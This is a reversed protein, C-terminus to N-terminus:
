PVRVAVIGVPQRNAGYAIATVINSKSNVVQPVQIVAPGPAVVGGGQGGGGQGGGGQPPLVGVFAVGEPNEALTLEGNGLEYILYQSGINGTRTGRAVAKRTNAFIGVPAISAFGEPVSLMTQRENALDFFVLGADGPVQNTAVALLGSLEPIPQLGTFGSVGAPLDLRFASGAASDLVFLTDSINRNSPDNNAAFLFDNVDGANNRTNVSGSGPLAVATTQRSALDLVLWGNSPCPNAAAASERGAGFLAVRRSLELNFFQLNQPRCTAAFWGAPFEVTSPELAAGRFATWAHASGDPKRSLIFLTQSTGDFFQTARFRALPNGPIIGGGPPPNAPQPAPLAVLATWGDPFPRSDTVELSNNLLALRARAPKDPDDGVAMAFRGQGLNMPASLPHTLGDGLDITFNGLLANINGAGGAGGGGAGGPVGGGPAGAQGETVEGTDPDVFYVRPNEGPQIAALTGNAGGVITSVPAPLDVTMADPKGPQFIVMKSSVGTAADGTAPGALAALASSENAVAVPTAVNANAAILCSETKSSGSRGLDFLWSPYCGDDGRPGHGILFNGRLDAARLVRIASAGEPLPLYQVISGEFRGVLPRNSSANGALVTVIDGPKSGEPM